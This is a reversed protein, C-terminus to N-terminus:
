NEGRRLVLIRRSSTSQSLLVLYFQTCRLSPTTYLRRRSCLLVVTTSHAAPASFTDSSQNSCEFQKILKKVPSCAKEAVHIVNANSQIEEVSLKKRFSLSVRSGNVSKDSKVRHRFFDQCGPNMSYMSGDSPSFSLVLATQPPQYKHLFEVCREVGLTLVCIPSNRDMDEEGDAHLRVGSTGNPYFTVLCSNLDTGLDANIKGCLEKIGQFESMKHAKNVYSKGSKASDWTYPEDSDCLFKSATQNDPLNLEKFKFAEIDSQVTDYLPSSKPVYDPSYHCYEKIDKAATSAKDEILAKEIVNNLIDRCKFLDHLSLECFLKQVDVM